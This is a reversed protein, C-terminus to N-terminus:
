NKFIHESDISYPDTKDEFKVFDRWNNAIYGCYHCWADATLYRPVFRKLKSDYRIMAEFTIRETEFCIPCCAELKSELSM